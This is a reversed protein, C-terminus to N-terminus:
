DDSLRGSTIESFIRGTTKDAEAVVTLALAADPERAAQQGSNELRTFSEGSFGYSLHTKITAKAWFWLLNEVPLNEGEIELQILIDPARSSKEVARIGKRVLGSVVRAATEEAYEGSAEVAFTVTSVAKRALTLASSTEAPAPMGKGEPNLVRYDANVKKRAAANEVLKLALRLREFKGEAKTLSESGDKFEGDLELLKDKLIDLSHARNLVALAFHNGNEDRWYQAIEVGELVKATTTRVDDSVEESYTSGDGGAIERASSSTKASLALSFSKAIEARAKDAAKEQSSSEGIGLVYSSKPYDVSRGSLWAPRQEAAIDSAALLALIGILRTM